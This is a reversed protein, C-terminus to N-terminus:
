FSESVPAGVYAVQCLKIPISKPFTIFCIMSILKELVIKSHIIYLQYLFVTKYEFFKYNLLLKQFFKTNHLRAGLFFM